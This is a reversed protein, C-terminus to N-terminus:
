KFLIECAEAETKAPNPFFKAIATRVVIELFQFRVLLNKPVLMNQEKSQSSNVTIFFRDADSLSFNIKDILNLEQCFVAFQNMTVGLVKGM